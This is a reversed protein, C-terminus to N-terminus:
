DGMCYVASEAFVQKLNYGNPGSNRFSTVMSAVQARDIDDQVPRLCVNAFVKEVQCQAFADSHALEQGMTKAGSGSGSLASDWGLLSNPGARWYNDWNDNTTIYGPAFNQNNNFYKQHV